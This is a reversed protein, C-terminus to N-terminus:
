YFNITFLGRFRFCGFYLKFILFKLSLKISDTQFLKLAVDRTAKPVSKLLISNEGSFTNPNYIESPGSLNDCGSIYCAVYM